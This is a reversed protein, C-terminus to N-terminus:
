KEYRKIYEKEYKETFKIKRSEYLDKIESDLLIEVDILLYKLQHEKCFKEAAIKKAQVTPTNHLRKPKIEVLIVKNVLFDATYTRERGLPSIYSIRLDKREASEWTTNKDELYKIIFSLERLSRFFYDKYWGSWGNGSGQPAPKGFMPNNQGSVAKSIKKKMIKLKKSAEEEGYREIWLDYLTRGFMPNNSGSMKQRLNEKYEISRKKGTNAKSIKEKTEQTHTQGFFPNNCGTNEGKTAFNELFKSEEASCRSCKSNNKISSKWGTYSKYKIQVNCKPCNRIWLSPNRTIPLNNSM